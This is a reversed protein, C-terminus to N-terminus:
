LGGTPTIITPNKSATFVVTDDDSQGNSNTIFLRYTYTGPKVIRYSVANLQNGKFITDMAGSPGSIKTWSVSTIPFSGGVSLSGNLWIQAAKLTDVAPNNGILAGTSLVTKDSGANAIPQALSTSSIFLLILIIARM